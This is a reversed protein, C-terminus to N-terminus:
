DDQLILYTLSTPWTYVQSGMEDSLGTSSAWLERLFILTRDFISSKVLPHRSDTRSKASSVAGGGRPCIPGPSPRPMEGTQFLHRTKHCSNMPTGARYM